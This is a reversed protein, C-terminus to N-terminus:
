GGSIPIFLTVLDGDNLSVNLDSLPKDNLIVNIRYDLDGKEDIIEEALKPHDNSLAALLSEITGNEVKISLENQGVVDNLPKLLKLTIDM